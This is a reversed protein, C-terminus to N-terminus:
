IRNDPDNNDNDRTKQTIESIDTDSKAPAGVDDDGNNSTTYSSKLPNWMDFINKFM